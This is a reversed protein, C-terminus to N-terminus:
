NIAAQYTLYLTMMATLTQLFSMNGLMRYKMNSSISIIDGPLLKEIKEYPLNIGGRIININNLSGQELVGGSMAIYDNISYGPIYKHGHPNKVFGTVFIYNKKYTMSSKIFDVYNEEYAIDVVDGEYIFPNNSLDGNMNYMKLSCILKSGDNKLISISNENAYKHLGGAKNIVDVLRDNTTITIFGPNMVAGSIQMKFRRLNMIVIDIYAEKFKNNNIFKQIKYKADIFSYGSIQVSGIDPIWLEGMPSVTLVYAFNTSTIISLGIKDGPGIIYHDLPLNSELIFTEPLNIIKDKGDMNLNHMNQGILINNLFFLTAFFIIGNKLKM